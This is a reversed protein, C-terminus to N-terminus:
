IWSSHACAQSSCCLRQFGAPVASPAKYPCATCARCYSPTPPHCRPKRGAGIAGPIHPSIYAPSASAFPLVGAGFIGPVFLARSRSGLSRLCHLACSQLLLSPQLAEVCFMFCVCCSSFVPMHRSFIDPRSRRLLREMAGESASVKVRESVTRECWLLLVSTMRTRVSQDPPPATELVPVTCRYRAQNGRYKRVHMRLCM